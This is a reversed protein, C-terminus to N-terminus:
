EAVQARHPILADRIAIMNEENVVLYAICFMDSLEEIGAGHNQLKEKLMFENLHIVHHEATRKADPGRM